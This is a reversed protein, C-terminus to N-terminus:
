DGLEGIFTYVDVDVRLSHSAKGEGLRVEVRDKKVLPEGDGRKQATALGERKPGGSVEVIQEFSPRGGVYHVAFQEPPEGVLIARFLKSPAANPDLKRFHIVRVVEVDVDLINVGGREFHGRFVGASFRFPKKSTGSKLAEVEFAEPVITYLTEDSDGKDATYVGAPDPGDADAAILRVELLIQYDYPAEFLALHSVYTRRDGFLVMSHIAEGPAPASDVTGADIVRPIAPKDPEVPGKDTTGSCALCVAVACAVPYLAGVLVSSVPQHILRGIEAM